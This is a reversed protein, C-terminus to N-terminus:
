SAETIESSFKQDIKTVKSFEKLSCTFTQSMHKFSRIQHASEEEIDASVKFDCKQHEYEPRM